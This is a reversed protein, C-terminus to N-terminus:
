PHSGTFCTDVATKSGGQIGWATCGQTHGSNSCEDVAQDQVRGKIKKSFTEEIGKTKGFVNRYCDNEIRETVHRCCGCQAMKCGFKEEVLKCAGIHRGLFLDSLYDHFKYFNAQFPAKVSKVTTM